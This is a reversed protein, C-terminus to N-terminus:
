YSSTGLAQSDFSGHKNMGAGPSHLNVLFGGPWVPFLNFPCTSSYGSEPERLLVCPLNLQHEQRM